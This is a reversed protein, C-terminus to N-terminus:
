VICVDTLITKCNKSSLLSRSCLGTRTLELDHLAKSLQENVTQLNDTLQQSQSKLQALSAVGENLEKTLVEKENMLRDREKRLAEV